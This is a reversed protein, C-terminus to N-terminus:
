WLLIVVMWRLFILLLLLWGKSMEVRLRRGMPEADVEEEEEEEAM